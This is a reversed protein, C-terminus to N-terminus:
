NIEIIKFCKEFGKPDILSFVRAFTDHSPIANPLKLFKKLFKYKAEAFECIEYWNDAGCINALITIVLIDIMEHRRNHNDVRPDELAKFHRLFTSSLM